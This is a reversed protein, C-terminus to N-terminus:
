GDKDIDLVQSGRVASWNTKLRQEGLINGGRGSKVQSSGVCCKCSLLHGLRRWVRSQALDGRLEGTTRKFPEIM